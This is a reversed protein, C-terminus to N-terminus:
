VVTLNGQVSLVNWDNNATVCVIEVSDRQLTSSLSGGTGTTTTSSGFYITQGSNQAITWRGTGKGTVRVISGLAATAPLTFTILASNDAIYGNNVSM